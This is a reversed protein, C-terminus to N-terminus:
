DEWGKRLNRGYMYILMQAGFETPFVVEVMGDEFVRNIQGRGYLSDTVKDLREFEEM